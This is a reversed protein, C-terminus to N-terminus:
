QTGVLTLVTPIARATTVVLLTFFGGCFLHALEEFENALLMNLSMAFIFVHQLTNLWSILGKIIVTNALNSVQTM